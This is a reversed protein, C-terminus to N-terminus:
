VPVLAGAKSAPQARSSFMTNLDRSPQGLAPTPLTAQREGCRHPGPALGEGTAGDSSGFSGPQLPRLASQQLPLWPSWLLM